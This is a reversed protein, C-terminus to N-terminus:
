VNFSVRRGHTPRPLSADSVRAPGLLAHTPRLPSADSVRPPTRLLRLGRLIDAVGADDIAAGRRRALEHLADEATGRILLQDVSVPGTAGIRRARSVVQLEYAPDWLTSLLFIHTAFPLNLGHRGDHHLLLVRVDGEPLRRVADKAGRKRARGCSRRRGVGRM